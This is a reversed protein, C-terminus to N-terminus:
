AGSRPTGRRAAVLNRPLGYLSAPSEGAGFGFRTASTRVESLPAESPEIEPQRESEREVEDKDAAKAEPAFRARLAEAGHM